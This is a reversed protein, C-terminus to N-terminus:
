SKISTQSTTMKLSQTRPFMLLLFSRRGWHSAVADSLAPTRCRTWGWQGAWGPILVSPWIGICISLKALLTVTLCGAGQQILETYITGKSLSGAWGTISQAYSADGYAFQRLQEWVPMLSYHFCWKKGVVFPGSQFISREHSEYVQLSHLFVAAVWTRSQHQDPAKVLAVGLEEKQSSFLDKPYLHPCAWGRAM